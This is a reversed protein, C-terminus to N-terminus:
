KSEILNDRYWSWPCSNSLYDLTLKSWKKISKTTQNKKEFEQMLM